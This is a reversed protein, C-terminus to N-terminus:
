RTGGHRNRYHRDDPMPTDLPLDQHAEELLGILETIAELRLQLDSIQLRDEYFNQHTENAVAYLESIRRNDTLRTIYGVISYGDTHSTNPWDRADAIAKVQHAAAGWIKESAQIRDGRKLMEAAHDLLRRSHVAHSEIPRTTTM